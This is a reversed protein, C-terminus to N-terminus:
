KKHQGARFERLRNYFTARRLGTKAIATQFDIKGREWEKVTEAFNEPLKIPSRGFRVGRKKAATVGEQQRKRIAHRENEGVYSLLSLVLDSILTGILDKHIRTDLLGPMDLIVIDAGKERTIVRWQEVNDRYNRGMRDLSHFYVVDGKRLKKLLSKYNPREFDKGSQKDVFINEPPIGLAGASALQRDENQDASSVRAYLYKRM